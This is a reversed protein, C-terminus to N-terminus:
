LGVLYLRSIFYRSKSRFEKMSRPLTTTGKVRARRRPPFLDRNVADWEDVVIAPTVKLPKAPKKKKLENIRSM